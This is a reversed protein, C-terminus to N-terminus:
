QVRDHAMASGDLRAPISPRPIFNSVKPRTKAYSPLESPQGALGWIGVAEETTACGMRNKMRTLRNTIAPSGVGLSAAIEKRTEGKGVRYLLGFDKATLRELTQLAIM